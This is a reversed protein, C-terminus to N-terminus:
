WIGPRREGQSLRGNKQCTCNQIKPKPNQISLGLGKLVPIDFSIQTTRTIGIYGHQPEEIWFGCDMIWFGLPQQREQRNGRDPTFHHAQLSCPDTDKNRSPRHDPSRCNKSHRCKGVAADHISQIGPIESGSNRAPLEGTHCYGPRIREQAAPCTGIRGAISIAGIDAPRTAPPSRKKCRRLFM